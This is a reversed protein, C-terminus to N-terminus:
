YLTIPLPGFLEELRKKCEDCDRRLTAIDKLLQLKPREPLGFMMGSESPTGAIRLANNIRQAAESIAMLQPLISTPFAGWVDVLLNDYFTTDFRDLCDQISEGFTSIREAIARFQAIKVIFLAIKQRRDEELLMLDRVQQYEMPKTNGGDGRQYFICDWQNMHPRRQSERVHVIFLGNGNQLPIATFTFGVDPRVKGIVQGFHNAEEGNLPIGVIREDPTAGKDTVGFVFFGGDVNAMACAVQCLRRNHVPDKPNRLVEKWDYWRPEGAARTLLARVTDLTWDDISTFPPM